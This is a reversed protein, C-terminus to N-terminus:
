TPQEEGERGVWTYGGEFVEKKWVPVVKKILDIAEMCAGFAEKRHPSAVAVVLSVEGIDVRGIRHSIAVEEVEWKDKLQSRIKDMESLAMQQYAEYELYLVKRGHSHDRTTGLFTVVAGCSNRRVKAAVEDPILPAETVEVMASDGGSVPPILAVEDGEALLTKPDAYRSNVAIALSRGSPVLNPYRRLVERALDGVCAGTPLDLAMEQHGVHERYAAFLRVRVKM